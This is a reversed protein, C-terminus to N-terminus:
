RSRSRTGFEYLSSDIARKARENANEFGHRDSSSLSSEGGASVMFPMGSRVRSDITRRLCTTRGSGALALLRNNRPRGRRKWRRHTAAVPESRYESAEEADGGLDRSDSISTPRESIVIRLRRIRAIESGADGLDRRASKCTGGPANSRESITLLSITVPFFSTTVTNCNM